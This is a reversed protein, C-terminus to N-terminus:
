GGEVLTEGYRRLHAPHDLMRRVGAELRALDVRYKGSGDLASGTQVDYFRMGMTWGQWYYESQLRSSPMLELVHGREPTMFMQQVLGMGQLAVLHTAEEFTRQQEELSLHEAYVTEFGHAALLAAVAAEDHIGRGFMAPDRSLFIRRGNPGSVRGYMARVNALGDQTFPAANLRYARGVHLWEGPEQVRWNLGAFAASRERLYAFFRSEFIWRNVVLPLDAPLGSRELWLAIGPLTDILHHYYNTSNKGDYVIAEAMRTGAGHTAYGLASPYLPLLRHTMSQRVLRGDPGIIQCRNPEVRCDDIATVNEEFCSWRASDPGILARYAPDAFDAPIGDFMDVHRSYVTDIYPAVDVPRWYKPGLRAALGSRFMASRLARRPLSAPYDNTDSLLPLEDTM